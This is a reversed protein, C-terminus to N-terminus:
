RRRPWAPPMMSITADPPPPPVDSFQPQINVSVESKSEMVLPSFDRLATMLRPTRRALAFLEKLDAEKIEVKDRIVLYNSFKRNVREELKDLDKMERTKQQPNIQAAKQMTTLAAEAHKNLEMKAASGMKEAVKYAYIFHNESATSEQSLLGKSIAMNFAHATMERMVIYKETRFESSDDHKVNHSNLIKDHSTKGAGYFMDNKTRKQFDALVEELHTLLPGKTLSRGDKGMERIYTDVYLQMVTKYIEARIKNENGRLLPYKERTAKLQEIGTDLRAQEGEDLSIKKDKPRQQLMSILVHPYFAENLAYIVDEKNKQFM